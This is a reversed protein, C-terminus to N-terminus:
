AAVRSEIYKTDRCSFTTMVKQDKCRIDRGRFSIAVEKGQKHQRSQKIIDHGGTKSISTAVALHQRSRRKLAVSTVVASHHRSRREQSSIDRGNFSTAVKERKSM